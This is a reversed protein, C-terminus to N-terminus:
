ITHRCNYKTCLRNLKDYFVNICTHGNTLMLTDHAEVWANVLDTIEDDSASKILVDATGRSNALIARLKKKAINVVYEKKLKEMTKDLYESRGAIYKDLFDAVKDNNEIRCYDVFASTYIQFDRLLSDSSMLPLNDNLDKYEKIVSAVKNDIVRIAATINKTEINM